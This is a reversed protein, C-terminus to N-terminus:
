SHRCYKAALDDTRQYGDSVTSAREITLSEVKRDAHVNRYRAVKNLIVGALRDGLASLPKTM